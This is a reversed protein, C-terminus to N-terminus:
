NYLGVDQGTDGLTITPNVLAFFIIKFLLLIMLFMPYLSADNGDMKSKFGTRWM